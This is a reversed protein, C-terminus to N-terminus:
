LARAVMSDILTQAASAAVFHQEVEGVFCDLQQELASMGEEVGAITGDLLAHEVAIASARAAKREADREWEAKTPLGKSKIHNSGQGNPVWPASLPRPQVRPQCNASAAAMGAFSDFEYAGRPM